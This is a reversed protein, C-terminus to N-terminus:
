FNLNTELMKDKASRCQLFGSLEKLTFNKAPKVEEPNDEDKWKFLKKM